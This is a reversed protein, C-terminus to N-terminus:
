KSLWWTDLQVWPPNYSVCLMDWFQGLGHRSNIQPKHASDLLIKAGFDSFDTSWVLQCLSGFSGTGVLRDPQSFFIFNQFFIGQLILLEFFFFRSVIGLKSSPSIVLVLEPAGFEFM